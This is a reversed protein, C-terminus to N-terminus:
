QEGKVELSKQKFYWCAHNIEKLEQRQGEVGDKFWELRDQLRKIENEMHAIERQRFEMDRILDFRIYRLGEESFNNLFYEINAENIPTTETTM